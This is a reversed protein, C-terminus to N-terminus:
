FFSMGFNDVVSGRFRCLAIQKAERHSESGELAHNRLTISGDSCSAYKLLMDLPAALLKCETLQSNHKKVM